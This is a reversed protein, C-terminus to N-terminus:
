VGIALWTGDEDAATVITVSSGNLPLTENYVPATAVVASGSSQLDFAEVTELGTEVEGGSDGGGNTFTGWAMRKNGIVTSGQQTSVFAM